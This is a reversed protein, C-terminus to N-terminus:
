WGTGVCCWELVSIHAASMTNNTPLPNCWTIYGGALKSLICLLLPLPNRASLLHRHKYIVRQNKTFYSIVLLPMVGTSHHWAVWWELTFCFYGSTIWSPIRSILMLKLIHADTWSIYVLILRGAIVFLMTTVQWTTTQEMLTPGIVTLYEILPQASYWNHLHLPKIETQRAYCFIRDSTCRVTKQILLLLLTQVNYWELILYEFFKM